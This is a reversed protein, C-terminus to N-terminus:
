QVPCFRSWTKDLQGLGSKKKKLSGIYARSEDVAFHLNFIDKKFM